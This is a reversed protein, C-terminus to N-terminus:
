AVVVFSFDEDILVGFPDAREITFGGVLKTTVAMGGGAVEVGPVVAYNATAAPTTFVVAYVGLATRTVTAVNAAGAIVAPGGPPATVSAFAFPAPRAAITRLLAFWREWEEAWGRPNGLPFLADPVNHETTERFAMQRRPLKTPDANLSNIATGAYFTIRAVDDANAGLGSGSDVVVQVLYTGVNDVPTLLTVPATPASLAAASLAPTIIDVAADIISWQYSIFPGGTATLVAPFGTAMDERAQGPVGVPVGSGPQDVQIQVPM